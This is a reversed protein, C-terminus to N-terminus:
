GGAPIINTNLGEVLYNYIVELAQYLDNTTLDTGDLIAVEVINTATTSTGVVIAKSQLSDPSFDKVGIFHRSM